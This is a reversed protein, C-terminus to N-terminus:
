FSSERIICNSNRVPIKTHKRLKFQGALSEAAGSAEMEDESTSSALNGKKRGNAGTKRKKVPTSEPSPNSKSRICSRENESDAATDDLGDDGKASRSNARAARGDAAQRPDPRKKSAEKQNGAAGEM